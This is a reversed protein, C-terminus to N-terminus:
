PKQALHDPLRGMALLADRIDVGRWIAVAKPGWGIVEGLGDGDLDYSTFEDCGYEYYSGLHVGLERPNVGVLDPQGPVIYWFRDETGDPPVYFIEGSVLEDRGDGTLDRIGGELTGDMFIYTLDAVVKPDAPLDVLTGLIALDALGDDRLNYVPPQMDTGLNYIVDELDITRGRGGAVDILAPYCPAAGAVSLLMEGSRNGAGIYTSTNVACNGRPGFTTDEGNRSDGEERPGDFPGYAIRMFGVNDTFAVDVTGDGDADLNGHAAIALDPLGGLCFAPPDDLTEIPGLHLCDKVWLDGVGNGDVDGAYSVAQAPHSAWDARDGFLALSHEGAGPLGSRFSDPGVRHALMDPLGDGSVDPFVSVESVYRNFATASGEDYVYRVFPAVGTTDPLTGTVSGATEGTTTAVSTDTDRGSRTATESPLPEDGSCGLGALLAWIM